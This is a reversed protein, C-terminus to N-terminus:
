PVPPALKELVPYLAPQADSLGPLVIGEVNEPLAPDAVALRRALPAPTRGHRRLADFFLAEVRSLDRWRSVEVDLDEGCLLTEVRAAVDGM